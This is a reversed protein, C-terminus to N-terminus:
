TLLYADSDILDVIVNANNSAPASVRLWIQDGTYVKLKFETSDALSGAESVSANQLYHQSQGGSSPIRILCYVVGDGNLGNGGVHATISYQGIAGPGIVNRKTMGDSLTMYVVSGPAVNRSTRDQYSYAVVGM